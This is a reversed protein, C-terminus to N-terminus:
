LPNGADLGVQGVDIALGLGAVGVDVAGQLGTQLTEIGDDHLIVGAVSMLGDFPRQAFELARDSGFDCLVVRSTMARPRRHWRGLVLSPRRGTSGAGRRAKF